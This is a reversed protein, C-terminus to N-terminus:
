RAMGVRSKAVDAAINGVLDRVHGTALAEAPLDGARLLQELAELRRAAVALRRRISDLDASVFCVPEPHVGESGTQLVVDALV